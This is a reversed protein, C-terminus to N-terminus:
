RINQSGSALACWPALRLLDVFGRAGIVLFQLSRQLLQVDLGDLGYLFDVHELFISIDDV